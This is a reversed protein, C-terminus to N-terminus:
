AGGVPQHWDGSSVAALLQSPKAVAVTPKSKAKEIIRALKFDLSLFFDSGNHEACWLHFADLLQNRNVKRKGQYAGTIRQLQLFREHQLSKLFNYQGEEWNELGGYLIRSYKAPPAVIERDAGYFYGTKSDLNPLGSIEVQTEVSIQFIVLGAGALAAVQPLLKAEAKLERNNKIQENPNVTVPDYVTVPKDQGPWNIKVERPVARPLQTASFKYINSDLYVKAKRVRVM